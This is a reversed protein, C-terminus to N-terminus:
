RTDGGNSSTVITALSVRRALIRRLRSAERRLQAKLKYHAGKREVFSMSDVLIPYLARDAPAVAKGGGRSQLWTVMYRVWGFVFHDPLHPVLCGRKRLDRVVSIVKAVQLTPRLRRLSSAVLRRDLQYPRGTSQWREFKPPICGVVPGISPAVLAVNMALALRMDRCLQARQKAVEALCVPVDLAMYGLKNAAGVVTSDDALYNEIGYRRLTVHQRHQARPRRLSGHEADTVVLYPAGTLQIHEVLKLCEDRGGAPEVRISLGNLFRVIPYVDTPGEVWVLVQAAFFLWRNFKGSQSRNFAPPATM